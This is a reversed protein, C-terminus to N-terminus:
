MLRSNIITCKKILKRNEELLLYDLKSAKMFLKGELYCIKITYFVSRFVNKLELLGLSCLNCYIRIFTEILICNGEPFFVNLRSVKISIGTWFLLQEEKSCLHSSIYWNQYLKVKMMQCSIMTFTKNIQSSNAWALGVAAIAVAIYSCPWHTSLGSWQM